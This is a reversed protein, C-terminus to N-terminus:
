CGGTNWAEPDDANGRIENILAGAPVETLKLTYGWGTHHQYLYVLKNNAHAVERAEDLVEAPPPKNPNVTHM